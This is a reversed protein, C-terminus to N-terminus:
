RFEIEGDDNIDIFDMLRDLQRQISFPFSVTMFSSVAGDVVDVVVVFVVVFDL